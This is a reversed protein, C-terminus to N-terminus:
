SPTPTTASKGTQTQTSASTKLNENAEKATMATRVMLGLATDLESLKKVLQKNSLFFDEFIQGIESNHAPTMDVQRLSGRKKGTVIKIAMVTRNWLYAFDWKPKLIIGMFEAMLDYRLLVTKLNELSLDEEDPIVGMAGAFLAIIQKDQGWTLETQTYTVRGIKYTNIM